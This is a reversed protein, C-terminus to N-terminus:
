MGFLSKPYCNVIRSVLQDFHGVNQKRKWFTYKKKKVGIEGEEIPINTENYTVLFQRMSYGDVIITGVVV